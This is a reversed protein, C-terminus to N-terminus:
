VFTFDATSDNLLFCGLTRVLSFIEAPVSFLDLAGAGCLCYPHHTFFGYSIKWVLGGGITITGNNTFSGLPTSYLSLTLDAGSVDLTGTNIHNTVKARSM